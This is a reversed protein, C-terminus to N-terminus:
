RLPNQGRWQTALTPGRRGWPAPHSADSGELRRSPSCDSHEGPHRASGRLQLPPHRVADQEAAFLSPPLCPLLEVVQSPAASRNQTALPRHSLDGFRLVCCVQVNQGGNSGRSM